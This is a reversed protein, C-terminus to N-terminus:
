SPRRRVAPAAGQSLVAGTASTLKLSTALAGGLRLHHGVFSGTTASHRRLCRLRQRLHGRRSLQDDDIRQAVTQSRQRPLHRRRGTGTLQSTIYTGATVGTGNVVDGVALAPRSYGSARDVTGALLAPSPARPRARSASRSRLSRRPTPSRPQARCTPTGSKLVGDITVNLAGSFAQLQTLTLDSINGGRLYAAVAALPYQAFLIAGPKKNSNDFGAFYKNANRAELSSAGFYNDVAIESAFSQVSGIPARTSLTLVLGSLDLLPAAPPFCARRLM